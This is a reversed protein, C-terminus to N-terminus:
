GHISTWYATLKGFRGVEVRNLWRVDEKTISAIGDVKRVSRELVEQLVSIEAGFGPFKARASELSQLSMLGRADCLRDFNARLFEKITSAVLRKKSLADLANLLLVVVTNLCGLVVLIVALLNIVPNICM